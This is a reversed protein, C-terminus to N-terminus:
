PGKADGLHCFIAVFAWFLITMFPFEPIICILWMWAEGQLEERGNLMSSLSPDHCLEKLPARRPIM